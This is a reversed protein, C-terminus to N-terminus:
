ARAPPPRPTASTVVPGPAAFVSPATPSANAEREGTSTIAVSTGVATRRGPTQRPASWSVVSWAAINAGTVLAVIRTV